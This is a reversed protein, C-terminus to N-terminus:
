ALKWTREFYTGIRRCLAAPRESFLLAGLDFVQRELAKSRKEVVSGLGDLQAPPLGREALEPGLLSLDHHDGLLDGLNSLEKRYAHLLEPWAAEVLQIQYFHRKTPTRFSHLAESRPEECALSYAKRARRYTAKFGPELADWGSGRFTIEGLEQRAELLSSRAAELDARSDPHDEGSPRLVRRVADATPQDLEDPSTEVLADFCELLAAQGRLRALAHAAERVLGRQRRLREAKASGAALAFLARLKKLHKRAEHVRSALEGEQSELLSIAEDLEEGAVRRLAVSIPEEPEFQYAVAQVRPTCPWYRASLPRPAVARIHLEGSRM